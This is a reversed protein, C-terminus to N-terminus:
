RRPLKLNSPEGYHDSGKFHRLGKWDLLWRATSSTTGSRATRATSGAAPAYARANVSCWHCTGGPIEPHIGNSPRSAPGGFGRRLTDPLLGGGAVRFRIDRQVDSRVSGDSPLRSSSQPARDSRNGRAGRGLFNRVPRSVPARLPIRLAYFTGGRHCTGSPPEKRFCPIAPSTAWKPRHDTLSASPQPDLAPWLSGIWPSTAM